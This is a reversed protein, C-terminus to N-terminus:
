FAGAGLGLEFRGGSLLDLSAAARALVTPPRLPLNIVNGSLAIRETQAAVYSLLTWTDLFGAQYPHDQFTVLGAGGAGLGAGARCGRAAGHEGAHHLFRIDPRQRLGGHHAGELRTSPRGGPASTGSSRDWTRRDRM